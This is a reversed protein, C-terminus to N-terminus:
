TMDDRLVDIINEKRIKSTAYLMTIYVIFLVSFISIGISAWPFIFRIEAGGIFMGKYILWSFIMGLPLGFLLAQMGYFLCELRMMKNFDRDSMGVSRLMALEQRRLKINTSITNFVNAVAIMSIMIIFTYAFVNAIFIYNRSEELVESTNLLIYASTIKESEIIKKMQAVSQSPNESQFTMGKVKIDMSSDFPTFSEKLSWPIMIQFFYPLNESTGIAPPIDLPLIEVFTLNVSKEQEIESKGNKLPTIAVNASSNTFMNPLQSVGEGNSSNNQMKAIAIMKGNEKTYEEAPLGLDKVIELFTSNDLFQIGAALNVIEDSSHEEKTKWYDDSLESAQISCLYKAFVQYSSKYISTVNKLKDYIQLIKDDDMDQTGFGIDYDTIAKAQESAQKLNIVFASTSLFLVISLVLSLVISRYRKKNRKFNKLALIGELGYIDQELKSIRVSKSEVKIENTQRICEMVPTNAVKKAPIYASILISVLSVASAAAIALASINLTLSVNSYLINGFNKAVVSIVVGISGIGVLVGIPIGVIGICFGEFLVSNRLQKTTAGVSSLIGIQQTRENLSISFSNYILFISGIMIIAIVIGGVSYLLANFIKDSSNNSLGMFRLVNNNLIYAHDLASTSVYSHVQHPNKLTVFLSLDYVIDTKETTTILSYGPSFDEEFVPTQCIGVVTYTKEEKPVFTEAKSIYPNGQGLKKEENMRNGITLSITDGLVYSGGGNAAIKGSILIEKSNEPLRGSLLSIPLTDFTEQNFGAIFLYPKNPNKEDDLIAYGINEFTVTDIVEKDLMREQVFSSDVDLFAAHWNGYKQIAGNTMYNLLSVGFTAVATIMAASLIVGVITVITRIRNKKLGQLAVKNFINM